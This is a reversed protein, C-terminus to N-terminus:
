EEGEGAKGHRELWAKLRSAAEGHLCEQTHGKRGDWEWEKRCGCMLCDDYVGAYEYKALLEGVERLITAAERLDVKCREHTKHSVIVIGERAVAKVKGNRVMLVDENWERLDAIMAPLAARAAVVLGADNENEFVMVPEGDEDRGATIVKSGGAGSLWSAQYEGTVEWEWPGPTAAKEQRELEDLNYNSM